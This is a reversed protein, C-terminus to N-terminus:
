RSRGTAKQQRKLERRQRKSLGKYPDGESSAYEGGEEDEDEGDYDAVASASRTSAASAAAQSPAEPRTLAELMELDDENWDQDESSPKQRSRGRPAATRSEAEWSESGSDTEDDSSSDDNDSVSEDDLTSLDSDSPAEDTTDTAAKRRRPKSGTRKSKAGATTKRKRRPPTAEAEEDATAKKRRTRKPPTEAQEESSRWWRQVMWAGIVVLLGWPGSRGTSSEPPDPCVYTVFWAQRWFATVLLGHSLWRTALMGPEYWSECALQEVLLCGAAHALGVLISLRLLWVASRCRRMDRLALWATLGGLLTLPVLWGLTERQWNLHPIRDAFREALLRHLDTGALLGAFAAVLAVWGWVRYRASFDLQSHSRSWGVIGALEAVLLWLGIDIFRPLRPAMGTTLPVLLEAAEVPLGHPFSCIATLAVLPLWFGVVVLVQMGVGIPLWPSASPLEGRRDRLVATGTAPESDRDTGAADGSVALRRRRRDDVARNATLTVSM